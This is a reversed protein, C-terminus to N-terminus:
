RNDVVDSRWVGTMGFNYDFGAALKSEHLQLARAISSSSSIQKRNREFISHEFAIHNRNYAISSSRTLPPKYM